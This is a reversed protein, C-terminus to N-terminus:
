KAFRIGKFLFKKRFSKSFFNSRWIWNSLWWLSFRFNVKWTIYKRWTSKISGKSRWKWYFKRHNFNIKLKKLEEIIKKRSSNL